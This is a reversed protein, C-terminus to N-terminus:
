VRTSPQVSGRGEKQRSCLAPPKVVRQGVLIDAPVAPHTLGKPTTANAATVLPM